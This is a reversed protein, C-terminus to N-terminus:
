HRRPKFFRGISWPSPTLKAGSQMEFWPGSVPLDMVVCFEILHRDIDHAPM